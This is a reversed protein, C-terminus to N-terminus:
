LSLLLFQGFSSTLNLSAGSDQVALGQVSDNANLQVIGAISQQASISSATPAVLSRPYPVPTVGNISLALQRYSGTSSTTWVIGFAVFYLGNVPATLNVPASGSWAAGVNQVVTNFALNTTVLNPIAQAANNYVHCKVLSLLQHKHGADAVQGTTGALANAIDIIAVDGVNTDPPGFVRTFRPAAQDTPLWAVPFVM